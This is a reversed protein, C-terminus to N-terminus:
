GNAGLRKGDHVLHQQPHLVLASGPEAQSQQHRHKSVGGRGWWVERCISFVSVKRRGGVPLNSGLFLLPLPLLFPTTSCLRNMRCLTGPNEKQLGSLYEPAFKFSKSRRPNAASNDQLDACQPTSSCLHSSTKHSHIPAFMSLRMCIM